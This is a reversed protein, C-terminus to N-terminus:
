GSVGWEPPILRNLSERLNHPLASLGLQYSANTWGFGERTIYAFKTGVNGYEAFVQHTRRVVDFKEPITGNYQAANVTITYLWRYILSVALSDYRYNQLGHWVLIQHPAWGFPYDWQRQPRGPSLPGRSELTSSLIGGPATLLPLAETVLARAQEPSALGAWLPYFTTASVYGTRAQLIFDYDFFMERSPDWLYRNIREKRLAAAARWASTTEESGNALELRGGFNNELIDAVDSEIKYLLSNLDVTVLNACRGLLRYSTDHGSERMARDHVFFSDLEPVQLKGSTYGREFDRVSMGSRGAYEAYVPDFHGPEVEPPPGTGADYYRSLGTETLHNYGMWVTRYEKIAAALARQLWRLNSPNEPLHKYVARAMSTLFPPQSRTLYYTRNANLVAGYHEVEYVTNDVMARALDTRGDRLLGLVIFYSDWGYMENFRGGPVVFPRGAVSGDPREELALTLLGHRDRLSQLYSPTTVSPLRHVRLGPGAPSAAVETFYNYAVEDAVPVYLDSGSGAALKEDALVQRLHSGDIRRTLGDWYLEKISRSIRDVPPEFIRDRSLTATDAGAQQALRLEQLLNSLYYTGAVEYRQHDTATVWFKKDGRDTGPHHPDDVTIKADNDSDEDHILADLTSQIAVRIPDSPFVRPPPTQAPLIAALM